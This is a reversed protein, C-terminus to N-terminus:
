AIRAVSLIDAATLTLNGGSSQLLAITATTGSAIWRQVHATANMNNGASVIAAGTTGSLVGGITVRAFTSTTAGGLGPAHLAMSYLGTAPCTWTAGGAFATAGILKNTATKNNAGYTTGSVTVLGSFSLEEYYAANVQVWAAANWYLFTDTDTEYIVMGTVPSGPRTGSTCTIVAQKMLYTNVDSSSLVTSTFTKFPM